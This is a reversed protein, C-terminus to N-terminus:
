FGTPPPSDREAARRIYRAAVDAQQQTLYPGIRRRVLDADFGVVLEVWWGGRDNTVECGLVTSADDPPESPLREPM